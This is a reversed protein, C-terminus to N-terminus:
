ANPQVGAQSKAAQQIAADVRARAVAVGASTQILAGRAKLLHQEMRLIAQQQKGHYQHAAVLQQLSEAVPLYLPFTHQTPPPPHQQVQQEIVSSDAPVDKKNCRRNHTARQKDTLAEWQRQASAHPMNGCWAEPMLTDAKVEKRSSPVPGGNKRKKKKDVYTAREEESAARWKALATARTYNSHYDEPCADSLPVSPTASRVAMSALAALDSM